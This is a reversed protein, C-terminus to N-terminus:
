GAAAPTSSWDFFDEPLRVVECLNAVFEGRTGARAGNHYMWVMRDQATMEFARGSDAETVLTNGNPLRQVSGGTRTSFQNQADGQYSWVIEQTFPDIEIVKSRGRHGQNDLLLIRGNALLTPKHQRLWQGSLAWRVRDTKADIIAITDLELM